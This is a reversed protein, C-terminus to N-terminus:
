DLWKLKKNTADCISLVYLPKVAIADQKAVIKTEIVILPPITESDFATM